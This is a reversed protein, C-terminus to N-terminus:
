PCLPRLKGVEVVAPGFDWAWSDSFYYYEVGNPLMVVLNGGYGAM